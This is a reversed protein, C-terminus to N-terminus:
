GVNPKEVNFRLQIFPQIREELFRAVSLGIHITGVCEERGCLFHKGTAYVRGNPCELTDASM